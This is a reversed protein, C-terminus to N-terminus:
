QVLFLKEGVDRLPIGRKQLENIELLYGALSDAFKVLVEQEANPFKGICGDKISGCLSKRADVRGSTHDRYTKYLDRTFLQLAEVEQRALLYKGNWLFARAKGLRTTTILKAYCFTIDVYQKDAVGTNKLLNEFICNGEELLAIASNMAMKASDLDQDQEAKRALEFGAQVKSLNQVDLKMDISSLQKHIKKFNQDLYLFAAFALALPGLIPPGIINGYRQLQNTEADRLWCIVNKSATNRIVGGVREYDGRSLGQTVSEPIVVSLDQILDSM